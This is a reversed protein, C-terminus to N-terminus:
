EAYIRSFYVRTETERLTERIIECIEASNKHYQMMRCTSKQLGPFTEAGPIMQLVIKFDIDQYFMQTRTHFGKPLCSAGISGPCHAGKENEIFLLSRVSGPYLATIGNHNMKLCNFCHPKRGPKYGPEDM